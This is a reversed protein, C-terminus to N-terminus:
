RHRPVGTPLTDVDGFGFHIRGPPAGQITDIVEERHRHLRPGCFVPLNM